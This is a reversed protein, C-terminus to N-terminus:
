YSPFDQPFAVCRPPAGGFRPGWLAQLWGDVRATGFVEFRDFPPRGDCGSGQLASRIGVGFIGLLTACSMTFLPLNRPQGDAVIECREGRSVGPSALMAGQCAVASWLGPGKPSKAVRPTPMCHGSQEGVQPNASGVHVPLVASSNAGWVSTQCDTQALTAFRNRAVDLSAEIPLIGARPLNCEKPGKVETPIEPLRSFVRSVYEWEFKPWWSLRAPWSARTAAAFVMGAAVGRPFWEQANRLASKGVQESLTPLLTKPLEDPYDQAALCVDAYSLGGRSAIEAAGIIPRAGSDALLGQKAFRERAAVRYAPPLLEELPEFRPFRGSRIPSSYVDFPVRGFRLPEGLWKGEVRKRLRSLQSAAM